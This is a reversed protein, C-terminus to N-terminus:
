CKMSQFIYKILMIRKEDNCIRQMLQAIEHQLLSQEEAMQKHWRKVGAFSLPPINGQRQSYDSIRTDIERIDTLYLLQGKTAGSFLAVFKPFAEFPRACVPDTQIPSSSTFIVQVRRYGDFLIEESAAIRPLIRPEFKGSPSQNMFREIMSSSYLAAAPDSWPWVRGMSPQINQYCLGCGQSHIILESVCDPIAYCIVNVGQHHSIGRIQHFLTYSVLKIFSSECSSSVM